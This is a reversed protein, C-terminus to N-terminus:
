EHSNREDNTELREKKWGSCYPCGYGRTRVHIQTQWEHGKLCQWWVKLVSGGFVQDVNLPRNRTPHWEQVLQPHTTALDNFGKLIRRNSCYPCKAQRRTRQHPSAEWEHGCSGKWWVKKTTSSLTTEPTLNENKTPHWESVLQPYQTMLDNFGVLLRRNSCYPCPANSQCRYRITTQWEHGCSGKWWVKKMSKASFQDPMLEGNKQTHWEKVLEPHTIVLNQNAQPHKHIFRESLLYQCAPCSKQQYTRHNITEKWEHRCTPVQCQWWVIKGSGRTIAQPTLPFNKTPHWDECLKPHTTALDNFGVLCRRGSCYPCGTPRSTRGNPSVCWEHGQECVWWVKKNSGYTVHEPTLDGNKTPHWQTCLEPHTLTLNAQKKKM